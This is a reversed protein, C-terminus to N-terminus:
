PIALWIPLDFGEAKDLYFLAALRHYGDLILLGRNSLVGVVPAPLKGSSRIFAAGARFRENTRKLNAAATEDATNFRIITRIRLM